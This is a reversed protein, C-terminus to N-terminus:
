TYMVTYTHVYTIDDITQPALTLELLSPTHFSGEEVENRRLEKIQKESLNAALLFDAYLACALLCLLGSLADARGVLSSVAEVHVPHFAFVLVAVRAAGSNLWQRRQSQHIFNHFYM